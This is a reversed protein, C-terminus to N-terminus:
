EARNKRRERRSMSDNSLELERVLEKYRNRLTIETIGAVKAAEKQAMKKGEMRAALYLAAIAM